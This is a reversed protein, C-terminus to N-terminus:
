RPMVKVFRELYVPGDILKQMRLRAGSSIEKHMLGKLGILIGKPQQM